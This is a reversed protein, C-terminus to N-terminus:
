GLISLSIPLVYRSHTEPSAELDRLRSYGGILGEWELRLGARLEILSKEAFPPQRFVATSRWNKAVNDSDGFHIGHFFVLNLLPPIPLRRASINEAM